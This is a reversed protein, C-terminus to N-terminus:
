DGIYKRLTEGVGLVVSHEGNTLRLGRPDWCPVWSHLEHSHTVAQLLLGGRDSVSGPDRDTRLAICTKLEDESMTGLAALEADLRLAVPALYLDALDSPRMTM